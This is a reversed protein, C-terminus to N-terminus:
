WLNKRNSDPVSHIPADTAATCIEKSQTYIYCLYWNSKPRGSTCMESTWEEDTVSLPKLDQEILYFQVM